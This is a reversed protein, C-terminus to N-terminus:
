STASDVLAEAAALAPTLESPLHHRAALYTPDNYAVWVKGDPDEWVLIKLPLDIAISPATIMLPTGVKPSGFILLKTPRMQLGAAQAEGSHDIVTFLKVGKQRLIVELQEVTVDVSHPSRKSVIQVNEDPTVAQKRQAFANRTSEVLPRQLGSALPGRDRGNGNSSVGNVAGDPHSAHFGGSPAVYAVGNGQNDAQDYYPYQQVVLRQNRV